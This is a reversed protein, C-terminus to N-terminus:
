NVDFPMRSLELGVGGVGVVGVCAVSALSRLMQRDNEAQDVRQGSYLPVGRRSTFGHPTWKMMRVDELERVM